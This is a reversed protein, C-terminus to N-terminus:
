AAEGRRIQVRSNMRAVGTEIADYLLLPLPSFKKGAPFYEGSLFVFLRSARKPNRAAANSYQLLPTGANLALSAGFRAADSAFKWAIVVLLEILTFGASRKRM